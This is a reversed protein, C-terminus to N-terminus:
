LDSSGSETKRRWITGRLRADPVPGRSSFPPFKLNIDILDCVAPPYSTPCVNTLLSGTPSSIGYTYSSEQRPGEGLIDPVKTRTGAFMDRLVESDQVKHWFEGYIGSVVQSTFHEVESPVGGTGPFDGTDPGTEQSFLGLREGRGSDRHRFPHLGTSTVLVIHKPSLSLSPVSVVPTLLVTVRFKVWRGQPM